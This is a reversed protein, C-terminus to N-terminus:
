KFYYECKKVYGANLIRNLCSSLLIQNSVLFKEITLKQQRNQGFFYSSLASNVKFTNGSTDRHRSGVGALYILM